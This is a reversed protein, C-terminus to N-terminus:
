HSAKTSGTAEILLAGGGSGDGDILEPMFRWELM